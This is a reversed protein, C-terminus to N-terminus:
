CKMNREHMKLLEEGVEVRIREIETANKDNLKQAIYQASCLHEYLNGYNAGDKKNLFEDLLDMDYRRHGGETRFPKLKDARDWKRLCDQSVNLYKAAEKMKLLKGM